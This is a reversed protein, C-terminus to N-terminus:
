HRLTHRLRVGAESEGRARAALAFQSDLADLLAERMIQGLFGALPIALTLVPLVLGAPSPGSVAPLWGLGTSFVLILVVGIWFHPLSAAVIEVGAGVAAALRGAGTSVLALGLALIWAVALALVALLLTGPLQRALVAVVDERLAYSRGLDGQALRGLQALYQVLLPQDLGYEARVA